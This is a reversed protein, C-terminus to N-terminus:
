YEIATAGYEVATPAPVLATVTGVPTVTTVGALVAGGVGGLLSASALVGFVTRRIRRM